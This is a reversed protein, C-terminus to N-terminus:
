RASAMAQVFGWIFQMVLSLALMIGGKKTYGQILYVIAVICAIGSCLVCLVYEAASPMEEAKASKARAASNRSPKLRKDLFEGCYKCKKAVRKISEGCYKCDKM